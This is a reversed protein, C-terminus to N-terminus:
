LPSTTLSATPSAIRERRFTPMESPIEFSWTEGAGLNETTAVNSGLVVEATEHFYGNAQLFEVANDGGNEVTGRIYTEGGEADLSFEGFSLNPHYFSPVSEAVSGTLEYSAVAGPDDGGYPVYAAWTEVPALDAVTSETTGLVAGGDDRFSAELTIRGSHADRGNAVTALVGVPAEADSGEVRLRHEELTVGKGLDSATGADTGEPTSGSGTTTQETSGATGTTGTTSGGGGASTTSEAGTSPEGTTAEGDGGVCGATLGAGTLALFTRRDM